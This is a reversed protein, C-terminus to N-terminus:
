VDRDVNVLPCLLSRWRDGVGALCVGPVVRREVDSISGNGDVEPDRWGDGCRVTRMAGARNGGFLNDDSLAGGGLVM